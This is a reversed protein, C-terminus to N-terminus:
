HGGLLQAILPTIYILAFYLIVYLIWNNSRDRKLLAIVTRIGIALDAYALASTKASGFACICMVFPIQIIPSLVILALVIWWGSPRTRISKDIDATM